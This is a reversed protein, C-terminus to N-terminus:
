KRTALYVAGLGILILPLYQAINAFGETVAAAGQVVNEATQAIAQSTAYIPSIGAIKCLEDSSFRLEALRRCPTNPIPKGDWIAIVVEGPYNQLDSKPIIFTFTRIDEGLSLYFRSFNGILKAPYDRNGQTTVISCGAWISHGAVAPKLNVTALLIDSVYAGFDLKSVITNDIINIAM